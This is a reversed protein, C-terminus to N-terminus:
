GATGQAAAFAEGGPHGTYIRDVGYAQIVVGAIWIWVQVLAPFTAHNQSIALYLGWIMGAIVFLVAARFSLSSAKM